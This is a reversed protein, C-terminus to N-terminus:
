YTQQYDNSHQQQRMNKRTRSWEAENEIKEADKSMQEAFKKLVDSNYRDFNSLLFGKNSELNKRAEEIKGEDRLRTAVKYRENALLNVAAVMVERDEAQAVAASDRRLLGTVQGSIEESRGTRLDLYRVKVAFGPTATEQEPNEVELLAYKEQNGYLQNMQLTVKRGRIEGERGLLRIPRFHQCEIEVTVEQAVVNLVDGFELTFIRALEQPKEVFAHNGDSRRALEAMLDENYGLGLGFTTVTMGERALSAGLDGLEQPTSPGENALGDSLLIIRNVRQRDLFKRVEAAGRAVGAFLATNTGAELRQIAALISRKDTAKTAPVLVSVTSDYAVVSLIDDPSLREVAMMAAEKAHKLKEGQMSGSKDLVIALNVPTRRQVSEFPVGTLGVKVYNLRQDEPFFTPQGLSVNLKVQAAAVASASAVVLLCVMVMMGTLALGSRGRLVSTKRNLKRINM